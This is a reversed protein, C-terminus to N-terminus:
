GSLLIEGSLCWPAGLYVFNIITNAALGGVSLLNRPTEKHEKHRQPSDKKARFGDM